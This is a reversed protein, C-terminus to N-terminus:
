PGVKARLAEVAEILTRLTDELKKFEENLWKREAGPLQPQPSRKYPTIPQDSM